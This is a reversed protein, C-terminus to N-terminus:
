GDQVLARIWHIVTSGHRSILARESALLFYAQESPIAIDSVRVLSGNQLLGKVLSRRGLAIGQLNLAADLMFGTDSYTLMRQAPSIQIGAKKLWPEWPQRSHSLFVARKFLAEIGPADCRKLYAPAAVPFWEDELLPECHHAQPRAKAFRIAIDAEGQDVDVKCTTPSVEISVAPHLRQFDTLAPVLRFRAFSPLVSIRIVSREQTFGSFAEELTELADKMQQHLYEGEPTMAVSRTTRTFLSNGLLRELERIRHSVSSHSINLEDAAKNFSRMRAVADFALILHIPPIKRM